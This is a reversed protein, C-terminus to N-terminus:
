VQTLTYRLLYVSEMQTLTYVLGSVQINSLFIECLVTLEFIMDYSNTADQQVPQQRSFMLPM